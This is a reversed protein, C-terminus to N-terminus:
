INVVVTIYIIKVLKMVLIQLIILIKLMHVLGSIQQQNMQQVVVLIEQIHKM